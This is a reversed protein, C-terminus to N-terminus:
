GPAFFEFGAPISEPTGGDIVARAVAVSRLVTEPEYPKCIHGLAVGSAGRAEATQASTFIVPLRWRAFLAHALAVGNSGGRLEIDLLALEPLGGECLAVAEDLTAAPGVVEHGDNELCETLVMAVLAEDEVILIRM